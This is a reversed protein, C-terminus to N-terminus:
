CFLILLLCFYGVGVLFYFVLEGNLGIGLNLLPLDSLLGDIGAFTIYIIITSTSSVGEEFCSSLLAFM